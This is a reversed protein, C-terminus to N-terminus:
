YLGTGHLIVQLPALLHYNTNYLQSINNILPSTSLCGTFTTWMHVTWLPASSDVGAKWWCQLLEKRLSLGLLVPLAIPPSPPPPPLFFSVELSEATSNHPSHFLAPATRGAVHATRVRSLPPKETTSLGRTARQSRAATRRGSM